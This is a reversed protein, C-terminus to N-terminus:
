ALNIENMKDLNIEYLLNGLNGQFNNLEYFPKICNRMWRLVAPLIALFIMLINTNNLDTFYKHHSSNEFISAKEPKDSIKPLRRSGVYRISLNSVM